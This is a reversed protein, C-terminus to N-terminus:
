DREVCRIVPCSVVIASRYPPVLGSLMAPIQLNIQDEKYAAEVRDGWWGDCWDNVSGVCSFSLNSVFSLSLTVPKYIYHPLFVTHTYLSLSHLTYYFANIHVLLTDM